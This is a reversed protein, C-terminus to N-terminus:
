DNPFRNVIIDVVEQNSGYGVFYVDINTELFRRQDARSLSRYHVGEAFDYLVADCNIPLVLNGEYFAQLTNFLKHGKLVKYTECDIVPQLLISPLPLRSFISDIIQYYAQTPEVELFPGFGTLLDEVDVQRKSLRFDLLRHKTSNQNKETNM